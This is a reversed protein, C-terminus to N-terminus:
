WSQAVVEWAKTLDARMWGARSWTETHALEKRSSPGHAVQAEGVYDEKKDCGRRRGGM